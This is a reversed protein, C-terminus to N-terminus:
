DAEIVQSCAKKVASPRTTTQNAGVIGLALLIGVTVTCMGIWAPRGPIEHLIPIAALAAVVPVVSLFVSVASAGLHRIAVNLCAIGLVSPVLGQYAGQLLIESKPASALNNDLWLLWIPIYLAASVMTASFLVQGPTIAWVRNAVMFVSFLAIAALFLLDGFWTMGESSSVFGEYGVLTVGILILGLGLLQSVRSRQGIWIWGLLTTFLPLCGNLFVGGHAAPAYTFGFYTLLVYPVGSTLTLVLVRALTLGRWARRWIIYPLLVAAGVSYRLGTVDYVTLSSTVGLRSVVIWGSWFMVVSVAAAAGLLV